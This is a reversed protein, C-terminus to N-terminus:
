CIKMCIIDDKKFFKLLRQHETQLRSNWYVESFNFRFRAGHERQKNNIRQKKTDTCVVEVNYDEKGALLEM